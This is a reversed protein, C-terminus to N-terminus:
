PVPVMSLEVCVMVAVDTAPTVSEDPEPCMPIFPEGILITDGSSVTEVVPLTNTEANFAPVFRLKLVEPVYLEIFTLLVPESVACFAIMADVDAVSEVLPPLKSIM